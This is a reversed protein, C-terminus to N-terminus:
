KQHFKLGFGTVSDYIYLKDFFGFGELDTKMFNVVLSM